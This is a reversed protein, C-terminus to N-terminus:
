KELVKLSHYLVHGCNKCTFMAVPVLMSLLTSTSFGGAGEPAAPIQLFDVAWDFTKCRPCQDSSVGRKKLEAVLSDIRKQQESIPSPVTRRIGSFGSSM